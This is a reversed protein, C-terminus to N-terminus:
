LQNRLNTREGVMNTRKGVITLNIWQEEIGKKERRIDIFPAVSRRTAPMSATKTAANENLIFASRQLIRNDLHKELPYFTADPSGTNKTRAATENGTGGSLASAGVRGFRKKRDLRSRQPNRCVQAQSSALMAPIGSGEQNTTVYRTAARSPAALAPPQHHLADNVQSPHLAARM